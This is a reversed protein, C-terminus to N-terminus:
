WRVELCEVVVRALAEPQELHPHHSAGDITLRKAHLASLREDLDAPSLRLFSESGEVYLVPCTVRRWFARAYAVPTPLPARTQHLPDFKWLRRGDVICTNHEVIHRAAEPSFRPFRERYRAIAPELDAAQSARREVRSLDDLWGVVRDPIQAPDTDPLGLGEISVLAHVREPKTGAYLVAAGGGMSDGVIAVNAGLQPALGALDAIYDFFHYYGGAGVWDSDGHGRWDLAFVHYGADAILPAVFDWAHAHELFGHLLLVVRDGCGWELLHLKLRNAVLFCDRPEPPM